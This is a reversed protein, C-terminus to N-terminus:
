WSLLLTILQIGKMKVLPAKVVVERLDLSQPSLQINLTNSIDKINVRKTEYGLFSFEIILGRDKSSNKTSLLFTGDNSTFAYALIKDGVYDLSKVMVNPLSKQDDSSIVRGKVFDQGSINASLVLLFFLILQRKM